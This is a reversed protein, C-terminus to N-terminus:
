RSRQEPDVYRNDGEPHSEQGPHGADAATREHHLKQHQM